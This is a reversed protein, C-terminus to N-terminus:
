SSEAESTVPNMVSWVTFQEDFVGVIREALISDPFRNLIAALLWHGHVASHWDFCGYFVPHVEKPSALQFSFDYTLGFKHPFEQKYCSLPLEALREATEYDITLDSDDSLISPNIAFM